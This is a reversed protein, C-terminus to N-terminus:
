IPHGPLKSASSFPRRTLRQNEILDKIELSPENNL